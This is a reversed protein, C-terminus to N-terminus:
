PLLELAVRLTVAGFDRRDTTAVRGIGRDEATAMVAADVFGLRLDQYHRNLELVRRLGNDDLDALLYAPAALDGYFALQAQTGIATGLLHDVEPVVSTPLILAGAEAEILRRVPEHWRDDRDYWAYLAGTDLILSM